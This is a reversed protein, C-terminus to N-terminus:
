NFVWQLPNVAVNRSRIEFYLPSNSDAALGILEGSSVTQNNKKSIAGLHACLSYFHDGHDLIIVKGYSPLEGSFAVKGSSIARVEGNKQAMIDIGKKFVYLGSHPDYSRGFNSVVKGVVPLSLKGKLQVFKGEMMVRAERSEKRQTEEVLALERRANFNQILKEVHGEASKLDRYNQLQLVREKQKKKLGEVQLQRNLELVGEQEKLDQFLYALQQREEQIQFELQAADSMDVRLAEIEKLGRDVLNSLVKRRPAELKEPPDFTQSRALTDRRHSSEIAILFKRLEQYQTQLKHSLSKKRLELESITKELETLRQQGLIREKRQLKLLKQLRKVQIKSNKQSQLDEVLSQELQTVQEKIAGLQDALAQRNSGVIAQSSESCIFAAAGLVLAAMLDMRLKLDL